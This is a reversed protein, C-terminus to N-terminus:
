RPVPISNVIGVFIAVMTGAVTLIITVAAIFEARRKRRQRQDYQAIAHQQRQRTNM